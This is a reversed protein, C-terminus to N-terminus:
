LINLEYTSPCTCFFEFRFKMDKTPKWAKLIQVNKLFNKQLAIKSIMKLYSYIGLVGKKKIKQCDEMHDPLILLQSIQNSPNQSLLCEFMCFFTEASFKRQKRKQAAM